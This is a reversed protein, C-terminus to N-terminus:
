KLMRTLSISVNGSYFRRRYDVSYKKESGKRSFERSGNKRQFITDEWWCFLGLMWKKSIKYDLALQAQWRINADFFLRSKTDAIKFDDYGLDHTPKYYNFISQQQSKYTKFRSYGLWFNIVPGASLSFQFKKNKTASKYGGTIPIGWMPHQYMGVIASDVPGKAYKYDSYYYVKHAKVTYDKIGLQLGTRFIFGNNGISDIKTDYYLGIAPAIVPVDISDLAYRFSKLENIRRNLEDKEAPNSIKRFKYRPANFERYNYTSGITLKLNTIDQALSFKYSILFGILLILKCNAKM